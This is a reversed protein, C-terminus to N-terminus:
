PRGAPNELGQIWIPEISVAQWPSEPTARQWDFTWQSLRPMNPAEVRITVMTRAVQSGRPDISARKIGHTEIFGAAQRSLAIVNDQGQGSGFRTRVRVDPHLLRTLSDQDATAAADVLETTRQMLSERMTTIANGTILIGVGALALTTGAILAAATRGSRTLVFGIVAAMALMAAAGPIGSGTVWTEIFPTPAVGPLEPEFIQALTIIM